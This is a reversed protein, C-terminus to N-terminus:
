KAIEIKVKKNKIKEDKILALVGSIKSKRIAVFASFDKVDILGIDDKKLQGKNSFFGVIDIKNIKDKKGAALFLTGWQPKEPLTLSDPLPMETSIDSIYNPTKEEPGVITFVSGSADMRATRGNRHTFSEETHPLHYHIVSRINEIDLGRSALDTTILVNSSNNRFKCLASEREYQEMGGHYFVSIIGKDKLLNYVREVADRHNCFVISSTNKLSCLLRFLTDIKDDEDSNVTYFSLMVDDKLDEVICNLVFSDAMDIFEPFVDMQTASTLMKTKVSPLQSMIYAMEEHFGLELIKDFEDLVLFKIHDTKINGRRLHDAMRGATAIVIAPPQVLNNEEIERKHGGYCCSIKCGPQIQKLVSEIQLALERSPVMILAQTKNKLEIDISQILPILFALTKGTGTNSLLVLNNHDQLAIQTDLQMKNLAKIKLSELISDTKMLQNEM